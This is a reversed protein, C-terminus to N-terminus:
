RAPSRPLVLTFTAGRGLDSAVLVDFRETALRQAIAEAQAVGDATLPSDQHGQIRSEVNWQTEGHRVVIFRTTM